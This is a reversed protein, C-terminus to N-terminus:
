QNNQAPPRVSSGALLGGGVMGSVGESSSGIGGEAQIQTRQRLQALDAQSLPKSPNAGKMVGQQYWLVRGQESQRCGVLALAVIAAVAGLRLAAGLRSDTSSDVNVM